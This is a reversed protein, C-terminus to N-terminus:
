KENDFEGSVTPLFILAMRSLKCIQKSSDRFSFSILRCTPPKGREDDKNNIKITSIGKVVSGELPYFEEKKDLNVYTQIASGRETEVIISLPQINKEFTTPLPTIKMTDVRMSIEDGDDTNGSLFEKVSKNGDSDTFELRDSDSSEVFTAFQTAKVNTHIYWNEQTLNYEACVDYLVKNVSGDPKYLTVDGLTFFISRGKKGAACAEKGATTSGTIYPEIKNSILRPVGGTTAYIGTYHLFYLTGLVKTYGNDSVCGIDLDFNELTYDNWTSITNKNAVMMVNGINTLMTIASNEGGTLKFTDYQKVDKGNITPNSVWRIVKEGDYTGTIWIEDSALIGTITGTVTIDTENVKTVTITTIKTTGRYIEYSNAGSTTYFYKNDTIKVTTSITADYDASVLSIIGMPFSSRLITTKYRDGDRIFDALYLRDKYFNIKHAQPTNYLHGNATTSDVVTTGDAKIYRNTDYYNTLFLCNEAYTHDFAGDAINTGEGTLAVWQNNNNLYYITTNNSPASPSPSSSISSSPSSSSSPSYSPSISSSLSLSVSSSPSVSASPSASASPSTSATVSIRYFSKGTGTFPFLGYNATTAFTNNNITTGLVTQGERKEITGIVKSRANETHTFETKKAINFGVLANTGEWFPITIRKDNTGSDSM